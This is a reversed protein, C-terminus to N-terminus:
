IYIIIVFLGMITFESEIVCMDDLEFQFISRFTANLTRRGSIEILM